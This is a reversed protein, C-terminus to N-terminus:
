LWRRCQPVGKSLVPSQGRESLLGESDQSWREEAQLVVCAEPRSGESAGGLVLPLIGDM